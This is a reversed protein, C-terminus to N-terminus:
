RRGILKELEDLCHERAAEFIEAASADNQRGKIAAALPLLTTLILSAKEPLEALCGATKGSLAPLAKIDDRYQKLFAAASDAAKGASFLRLPRATDIRRTGAYLSIPAGLGPASRISASVAAAKAELAKRYGRLVPTEYYWSCGADTKQLLASRYLFASFQAELSLLRNQRFAFHPNLYSGRAYSMGLPYSFDAGYLEIEGAGLYEALSIAAYTVNAGSTDLEPFPRWYLSIYRTLPHGGSFFRVNEALSALLPTGALDLFLPIDPPLCHGEAPFGPEGRRSVGMFHYYSIHQCDISVVADPKLDNKLLVPLATDVSIIFCDRKGKTDYERLRPLQVDLSPGAACILAKKVPPLPPVSKEATFVNRIINSFWRKGFHAQVSYDLSLRDIAKKIADGAQGFLEGEQEVRQRLPIVRIGGHLAPKWTELIHRELIEGACDVLLTFRPDNFIRIYERSALLEAIGNINFDVVLVKYVDGRKLAAEPYYGGGLGFFVLCGGASVSAEVLREGERRPDVLSHLAHAAGAADVLAPVPEGNRSYLFRYHGLTTRAASLRSCLASDRQSLALLNREFLTKDM